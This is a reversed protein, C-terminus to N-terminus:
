HSFVTFKVIENKVTAFNVIRFVMVIVIRM